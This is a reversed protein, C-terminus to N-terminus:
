SPLWSLKHLTKSTIHLTMTLFYKLRHFFVNVEHLYSFLSCAQKYQGYFHFQITIFGTLSKLKNCTKTLKKSRVASLACYNKWDNNTWALKHVFFLPNHATLSSGIFFVAGNNEAKINTPKWLWDGRSVIKFQRNAKGSQAPLISLSRQFCHLFHRSIHGFYHRSITGFFKIRLFHSFTQIINQPSLTNQVLNRFWTGSQSSQSM